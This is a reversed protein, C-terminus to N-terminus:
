QPKHAKAMREFVSWYAGPLLRQLLDARRADRGILVRAQRREIGRVIQQAADAASVTLGKSYQELQRRAAEPDLTAAVRARRAIGTAIGGPFVLTVGVSTGSLEQRLAESFGRLAFKSAVYPAQYPLAVIGLISAVNVIRAEPQAKLLGLFAKTMRVGSWFNISVLWEMEEVALEEVSGVLGVGANNILCTVRQHDRRVETPLHEIADAQGLDIEHVSVSSGFSRAAHATRQLGERDRDVLALSAGRRALEIALEAGIGNAAGTLVTTGTELDFAM